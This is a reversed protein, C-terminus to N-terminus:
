ECWEARIKWETGKPFIKETSSYMTSRPDAASFTRQFKGSWSPVIESPELRFLVRLLFERTIEGMEYLHKRVLHEHQKDMLTVDGHALGSRLDKLSIDGGSSKDFLLKLYRHGEGFISLVAAKTKATLSQVCEFYSENVFRIPDTAFLENHKAHICINALAKKETKNPKTLRIRGL